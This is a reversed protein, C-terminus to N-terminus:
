WRAGGMTRTDLHIRNGYLGLSVTDGYKRDLYEFIDAPDIGVLKTIVKFDAARGYIHQSNKSTDAGILGGSSRFQERLKDNHRRCRNGGTIRVVVREDYISSFHDSVDQLIAILASDVTDFSCCPCKFESRSFNNSLKM